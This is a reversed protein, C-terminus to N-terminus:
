RTIKNKEHSTYKYNTRKNFFESVYERKKLFSDQIKALIENKSNEAEEKTSFSNVFELKEVYDYDMVVNIIAFM